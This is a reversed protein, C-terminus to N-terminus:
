PLSRVSAAVDGLKTRPTQTEPNEEIGSWRAMQLIMGTLGQDGPRENM